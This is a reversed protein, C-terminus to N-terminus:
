PLIVFVADNGEFTIRLPQSTDVSPSLVGTDLVLSGQRSFGDVMQQVAMWEMVYKIIQRFTYSLTVGSPVRNINDLQNALGDMECRRMITLLPPFVFRAWQPTTDTTVVSQVVHLFLAQNFAQEAAGKIAAYVQDHEDQSLRRTDVVYSSYHKPWLILRRSDFSFKFEMPYIKPLAPHEATFSYQFKKHISSHISEAIDRTRRVAELDAEDWLMREFLDESITFRKRRNLRCMDKAQSHIIEAQRATFKPM